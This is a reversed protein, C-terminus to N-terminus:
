TTIGALEKVRDFDDHAAHQKIYERSHVYGSAMVMTITSDMINPEGISVLELSEIRSPDIYCRFVNFFKLKCTM